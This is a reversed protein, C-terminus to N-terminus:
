LHVIMQSFALTNKPGDVRVSIRYYPLEAGLTGLSFADKPGERPAVYVSCIDSGSPGNANCLRDILIRVRNGTTANTFDVAAPGPADAPSMCVLEMPLGRPDLGTLPPLCNPLLQPQRATAYYRYIPDPTEPTTPTIALAGNKELLAAGSELGVDAEQLAGQKFSVNGSVATTTDVSRILAIGALSMAVLVILAIMLVIGRQSHRNASRVQCAGRPLSQLINKQAISNM